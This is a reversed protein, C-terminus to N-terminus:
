TDISSTTTRLKMPIAPPHFLAARRPPLRRSVITWSSFSAECFLSRSQCRLASGTKEAECLGAIFHLLEDRNTRQGRGRGDEDSTRSTSKITRRQRRSRSLTDTM